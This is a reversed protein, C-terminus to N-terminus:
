KGVPILIEINRDTKDVGESRCDQQQTYIYIIMEFEEWTWLPACTLIDPETSHHHHNLIYPM